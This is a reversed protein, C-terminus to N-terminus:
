SFTLLPMHKNGQSKLSFKRCFLFCRDNWIRTEGSDIPAKGGQLLGPEEELFVRGLTQKKGLVWWLGSSHDLEFWYEQQSRLLNKRYMWFVAVFFGLDKSFLTRLLSKQLKVAYELKPQFFGLGNQPLIDNEPLVSTIDKFDALYNSTCILSTLM